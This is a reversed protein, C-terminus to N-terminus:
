PAAVVFELPAVYRGPPQSAHFRVAFRLHVDHPTPSIPGSAVLDATAPVDNWAIGDGTGCVGSENWAPTTGASADFLCAGFFDADAAGWDDGLADNYDDVPVGSLSTAVLENNSATTGAVLLDGDIGEEVYWGREDAAPQTDITAIGNTGFTADVAGTPGYRTVITDDSGTTRRGALVIDGVSTRTGYWYHESLTTLGGGFTADWSGGGAVLRGFRTTNDGTLAVTVRGASDQWAGIPWDDEAIGITDLLGDGSFTNDQGGTSTARYIWADNSGGYPGDYFGGFLYGGTPTESVFTTGETLGPADPFAVGGSGFTGDLVGASTFRAILITDNGDNSGGAVIRGATDVHMADLRDNGSNPTMALGGVGFGGDVGGTTTRREIAARSGQAGAVLFSGDDFVHIDSPENAPADLQLTVAGSTGWATDLAGAATFRAVRLQGTTSSDHLVYLRGSADVGAGRPLETGTIGAVVFGAGSAYGTDLAGTAPRFMAKGVHDEQRITLQSTANTSGYTVVCDDTTRDSAGPLMPAFQTRAAVGPLCGNVDITTATLV